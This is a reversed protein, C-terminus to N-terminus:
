HEIISRVEITYDLQGIKTDFYVLCYVDATYMVFEYKRVSIIHFFLTFICVTVLISCIIELRGAFLVIFHYFLILYPKM